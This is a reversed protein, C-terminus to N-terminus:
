RNRGQPVSLYDRDEEEENAKKQLGEELARLVEIKAQTKARIKDELMKLQMIKGKTTMQTSDDPLRRDSSLKILHVGDSSDKGDENM